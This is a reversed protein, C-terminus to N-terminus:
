CILLRSLRVHVEKYKLEKYFNTSQKLHWEFCVVCTYRDDEYAASKSGEIPSLVLASLIHKSYTLLSTYFKSFSNKRQKM